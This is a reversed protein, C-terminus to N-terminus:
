GPLDGSRYHERFWYAAILTMANTIQGAELMGFFRDTEIVHVKIDEHEEGLGFFGGAEHLNARAFYLHVKESSGGPSVYYEHIRVPQEILIDAEEQAERMAVKSPMEGDEIVGAILELQWPDDKDVLGIRFQEILLVTDNVPDYPLVAAAEGREFLERTMPGLTGGDFRDHTLTFREVKFFGDYATERNIINFKKKM